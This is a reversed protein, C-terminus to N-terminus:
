TYKGFWVGVPCSFFFYLKVACHRACALTVCVTGTTREVFNGLAISMIQPLYFVFFSSTTEDPTVGEAPHRRRNLTLGSQHHHQNFFEEHDERWLCGPGAVTSHALRTLLPDTRSSKKEELPSLPPPPPQQERDISNRPPNM